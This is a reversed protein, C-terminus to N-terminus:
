QKDTENNNKCAVVSTRERKIAQFRIHLVSIRAEGVSKKQATVTWCLLDHFPWRM